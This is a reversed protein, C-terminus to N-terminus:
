NYLLYCIYVCTHSYGLFLDCRFGINVILNNLSSSGLAYILYFLFNPPFTAFSLNLILLILIIGEMPGGNRHKIYYYLVHAHDVDILHM